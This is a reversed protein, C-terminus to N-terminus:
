GDRGWVCRAFYGDPDYHTELAGGWADKLAHGIRHPLHVDTTHIVIEDGDEDIAMIRHLPHQAKELEGINNAVRLLEGRHSAVFSGSLVLEGAPYHDNTRRCAPCLESRFERTDNQPWTWHGNRYRAGCQPCGIADKLKEHARYPDHVQEKLFPNGRILRTTSRNPKM